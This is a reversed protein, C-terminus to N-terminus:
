EVVKIEELSHIPSENHLAYKNYEEYLEIARLANKVSLNKLSYELHANLASLEEISSSAKPKHDVFPNYANEFIEIASPKKKKPNLKATGGILANIQNLVYKVAAEQTKFAQFNTNGHKDFHAYVLM